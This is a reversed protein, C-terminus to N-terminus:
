PQGTGGGVTEPTELVVQVRKGERFARSRLLVRIARIIQGNKGIVKGIDLPAVKVILVEEGNQTEETIIVEKPNDVIQSILFELLKKM